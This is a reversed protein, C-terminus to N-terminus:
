SRAERVKEVYARAANTIDESSGKTLNNGVGVAICGNKIWQDVNDLSVGGTPMLLHTYSVPYLGSRNVYTVIGNYPLTSIATVKMHPFLCWINAGNTVMWPCM